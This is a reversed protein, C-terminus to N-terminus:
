NCIVQLNCHQQARGTYAEAAASRAGRFLFSGPVDHHWSGDTLVVPVAAAGIASPYSLSAIM